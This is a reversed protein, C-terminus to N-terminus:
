TTKPESTPPIPSSRPPPASNSRNAMCSSGPRRLYSPLIIPNTWAWGGLADRCEVRLYVEDGTLTYSAERFSEGPGAACHHGRWAMGIFNIEVVPSTRVTLVGNALSVHQFEPGCSSYFLGNRLSAMIAHRSLEPAKVMVWALAADDRGHCDDVALGWLRVRRALLDDWQVSSLGKGLLVHCTRNFVEVGLMGSWKMLDSAVLGSWYPHAIVAEGGRARIWEIASAVTIERPPDGSETLGFGVIHYSDGLDSRDGDLEVGLLMLIGDQAQHSVTTVKGHDTLALFDYGADRFLRMAEEPRYFGDSETTHTHLNGKYWHGPATFPNVFEM